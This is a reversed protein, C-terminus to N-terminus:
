FNHITCFYRVAGYGSNQEGETPTGLVAFPVLPPPAVSGASRQNTSPSLGIEKKVREARSDTNPKNVDTYM